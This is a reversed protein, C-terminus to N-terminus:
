MALVRMREAPLEVWVHQGKKLEMVYPSAEARLHFEGSEIEYGVRNGTFVASTVTGSVFNESAERQETHLVVAEPRFMVSVPQGASITLPLPCRFPGLATEVRGYNNAESSLARGQIVNTTGVFGAVFLNAPEKYIEMPAGLQVVQGGHMVAMRHSLVLAEEQDHTVYLATLKLREFLDRLEHRMEVRLKADLNSLPEDFLLLEPRAVLARAVAVRQQQGGSLLSAPRKGLEGLQVLQLVETVRQATETRPLRHRGYTLPYGVNQAVSMHPWVAYSQFVMGIEREHVPVLLGKKSSFVPKDNIWIDGSDPIELGAICRLTTTKGCGSSGLLAFFEGTKVEFSVDRVADVKGEGTVFTKNLGEVRLM